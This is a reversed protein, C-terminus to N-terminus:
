LLNADNVVFTYSLLEPYHGLTVVSYRSMAMIKSSFTGEAIISVVEAMKYLVLALGFDDNEDNPRRHVLIRPDNFTVTPNVYVTMGLLTGVPYLGGANNQAIQNEFPSLSYQVINQINALMAGSVILCNAQGRRGLQTIVANANIIANIIRRQMTEQNEFTGYDKYSNVPITRQTNGKDIYTVTGAAGPATKTKDLTTNLTFGQSRYLNYNNTWGLKYATNLIDKSMTQSLENVLATETMSAINYGFQSYMDQQQEITFTGVVKITGVSGAVTTARSGIERPYTTEGVGRAMPEFPTTGDEKITWADEDNIGAGAFGQIHNQLANVYQPKLTTGDRKTTDPKDTNNEAIFTKAVDGDFIEYLKLSPETVWNAGSDTSKYTKGVRFIPFGNIEDNGIYLIQVAKQNTGDGINVGWYMKNKILKKNVSEVTTPTYDIEFVQPKDCALDNKDNNMKGGAYVFDHYPIIYNPTSTNIVRALDLGTTSAAVQISMQVLNGWKDGSGKTGNHFTQHGMPSTPFTPNGMGNVNNLTASPNNFTGAFNENVTIDSLSKGANVRSQNYAIESIMQLKHKPMDGYSEKIINGWENLAQQKILQKTM